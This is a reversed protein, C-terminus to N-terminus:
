RPRMGIRVLFENMLDRDHAEVQLIETRRFTVSIQPQGRGTFPPESVDDVALNGYQPKVAASAELQKKAGQFLGDRVFRRFNERLESEDWAKLIEPAIMKRMAWIVGAVPLGVLVHWPSEHRVSVVEVPQPVDRAMRPLSSYIEDRARDSFDAGDVFMRMQEILLSRTLDDVAAFLYRFDAASAEGSDALRFGVLFSDRDDM